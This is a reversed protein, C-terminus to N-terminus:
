RQSEIFALAANHARHAIDPAVVLAQWGSSHETRFWRFLHRGDGAFATRLAAASASVLVTYTIRSRDGATQALRFAAQGTAGALDASAGSLTLGQLVNRVSQIDEEGTVPASHIVGASAGAAWITISDGPSLIRNVIHSNIWSLVDARNPQLAASTDVILLVDVPLARSNQAYLQPLLAFSFASFLVLRIFKRNM